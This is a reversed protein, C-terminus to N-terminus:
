KPNFVQKWDKKMDVILYNNKQAYPLVKDTHSDYNFERISDTHHILISLSKKPNSNTYELMHFDGNSNGASFIPRKGIVKYIREPKGQWNNLYEGKNTRTVVGEKYELQISTGFVYNPKIDYLEESFLKLFAGEDATFIYVSFLNSKLYDILEKMPVYTLENLSKNFKPHTWKKYFDYQIANYQEVSIGNYPEGFLQGIIKDFESKKFEEMFFGLSNMSKTKIFEHMSKYPEMTALSPDENIKKAFSNFISYFHSYLPKETWLTGDNDFTAIRDKPAVYNKSDPNCIDKVFEIIREKQKNDNWSSLPDSDENKQNCSLVWFVILLLIISKKM